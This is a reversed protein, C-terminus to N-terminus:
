INPSTKKKALYELGLEVGIIASVIVLASICIGTLASHTTIVLALGSAILASGLGVIFYRGTKASIKKTLIAIARTISSIALLAGLTIHIILLYSM